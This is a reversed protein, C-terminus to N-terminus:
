DVTTCNKSKHIEDWIEKLDGYKVNAYYDGWKDIEDVMHKYINNPAIHGGTEIPIGGAKMWTRANIDCNNLLVHYDKEDRGIGNIDLITDKASQAIAKGSENNIPFYVARNYNDERIKETTVIYFTYKDKKEKLISGVDIGYAYNVNANNYGWLVATFKNSNDGVYSYLDGTDDSRLLMMATHGFGNAGSEINLYFVGVYPAGNKNQLVDNEVYERPTKANSPNALPAIPARPKYNIVGLPKRHREASSPNALPVRPKKGDYDVLGFPNGFCYGYQNLSFPQEISGKIWDEGAFRGVGPVYERAQAFYTDAVKDYRYGTYGFPQLHGQTKYADEGFEDYGYVAQSEGGQELLRVTSGLEDQLYTFEKEGEEMYAVNFDWVYSQIAQSGRKGTRRQLLNHYARTRDLIYSKEYSLTLESLNEKM